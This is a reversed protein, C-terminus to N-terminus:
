KKLTSLRFFTEPRMDTRRRSQFCKNTRLLHVPIKCQQKSNGKSLATIWPKMLEPNKRNIM